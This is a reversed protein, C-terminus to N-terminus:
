VLQRNLKSNKQELLHRPPWIHMLVKPTKKIHLWRKQDHIRSAYFRSITLPCFICIHWESLHLSLMSLRLILRKFVESTALPWKPEQRENQYFYTTIQRASKRVRLQFSLSTNVATTMYRNCCRLRRPWIISVLRLRSALDHELVPRQEYSKEQNSFKIAKRESERRTSHLTFRLYVTETNYQKM